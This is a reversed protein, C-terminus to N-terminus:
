RGSAPCASPPPSYAPPLPPASLPVYRTWERFDCSKWSCVEAMLCGTSLIDGRVDIQGALSGILDACSREVPVVRAIPKGHRTILLGERDLHDLLSLCHSKFQAIAITKMDSMM